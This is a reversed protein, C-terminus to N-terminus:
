SKPRPSGGSLTAPANALDYDFTGDLRLLLTGAALTIQTGVAGESGDAAAIRLAGGEPEADAGAGDDALVDGPLPTRVDTTIADEASVPLADFDVEYAGIYVQM